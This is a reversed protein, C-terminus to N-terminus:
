LKDFFLYAGLVTALVGMVTTVVSLPNLGVGWVKEKRPNIVIIDNNQVWFFESNMISEKTMDIYVQQTGSPTTRIVRVNKLDSYINNTGGGTSALAELMSFDRKRSTFNGNVGEGVITYEIGALDVDIFTGDPTYIKYFETKIKERAEALTLGEVQIKGIRPLEIAGDERVYVGGLVNNTNNQQNGRAIFDSLIGMSSPERSSVKIVINDFKQIHYVPRNYAIMGRNDLKLKEDPQILQLDKLSICSQLSLLGCLICFFLFLKNKM